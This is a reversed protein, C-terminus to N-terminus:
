GRAATVAVTVLCVVGAALVFLSLTGILRGGALAARDGAESTLLRHHRGYRRQVAALLGVSFATAVIGLALAWGGLLEPLIRLSALSGVLLALCTRRWALATREPQLGPDFLESM